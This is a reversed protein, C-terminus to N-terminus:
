LVDTDILPGRHTLRINFDVGDPKGKCKIKESIVELSRWEGDVLYKLGDESLQERYLDSLDTRSSTAGWAIYPTKVIM